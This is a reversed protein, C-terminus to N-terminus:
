INAVIPQQAQMDHESGAFIKLHRLQHSALRSSPMMGKVAHEIIYTPKRALMTRYGTEIMGGMAGTNHRYVKQAAKSGTVKIKEANIVIVGDGIDEHATFTPKHKGRLVKTIESAFRGLTKGTADFLFWQRKHQAPYKMTTKSKRLAMNLGKLKLDQLINGKLEKNEM